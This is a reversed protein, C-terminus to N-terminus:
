KSAKLIIETKGSLDPVLRKCIELLTSRVFILMVVFNFHSHRPVKANKLEYHVSGINGKEAKLYFKIEHVRENSTAIGKKMVWSKPFVALINRVLKHVVNLGNPDVIIVSGKPKLIKSIESLIEVLNKFHHLM